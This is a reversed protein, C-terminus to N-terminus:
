FKVNLGVTYIRSLPYLNGWSENPHEPDLEISKVTFLNYGNFYVRANKVGVSSVFKVPLTYGLELSKLRLYSANHMNFRSNEDPLTGTYAYKGSIWQTTHDYPDASPDVPRWRDMFYDLANSQENGWMPERLQEIYKVYSLASGQFLANLDFGKWGAGINFSFNFFPSQSDQYVIPYEDLSSIVGDGNWDEYIYDGPLTGRGYFVPSNAIDSYSSFRGAEGYGRHFNQNRNENNNRWNEYSNGARAREDHLKRIRTVTLMGRVNYTFDRLTKRHTLELEFGRARDGNLNEQPLEAGVVGPLSFTRKELLGTRTRNFYDVTGGLLGNWMEFDVGLDFMKSTFWTINPNPIGRSSAANVFTGDFFYGNPLKNYDGPSPYDYGTIFQYTSAVDDGMKGYSARLKFNNFFDLFSNKWFAEESARWGASVAPFFGWRRGSGFLSSGDRRFSFEALYKSRYDYAVRGVIGMNTKEYLDNQNSSMSGQQNKSNGAFLQDVDLAMERQAYFNDGTRKQGELLALASVTHAKNFTRNYNLSLQYLSTGKTFNERRFTGPSQMKYPTYMDQAGDYEYLTFEKKYQRNDAVQYDYSFMGKATLGEVKPIDLSLTMSSQFWKNGFEKYGSLDADMMAVANEGEIYGRQLYQPNNNAYLPQIAAARQFTRIIWDSNTYPQEKKDSIGSLNLDLTLLKSIKASLNSRVNFRDYNLSNSRIFSEQKLYGVSTYFRMKENGGTANLSHQTQPATSRMVANWWDTGQKTGNRYADIEEQSFQRNGGNVNHMLKENRLVMWDAASVSKPSGTPNQLGFSGTYDLDLSGSKGKKTTILVVGNAARVGYVAASADKLVSISEIDNADMRTINDRPVGDIVVLPSGLGRIDFSNNFSGPESSKQVVRVGPLKGTLMNQVNENRTTLIESSTISAVAGTLTAKKQTGYGVVVVEQLSKSSSPALRVTFSRTNGVRVRQTEYGIFSILLTDQPEANIKFQGQVDTVTGTNKGAVRVSAGPLALGNEDVVKGTLPGQLKESGSVPRVEKRSIVIVDHVESFYLPKNDLIQNLVSELSVNSFSLEPIIYDKLLRKDYAFTVRATKQLDIIATELSGKKLKITVPTEKLGQGSESFAASLPLSLFCVLVMTLIIRGTKCKTLLKKM